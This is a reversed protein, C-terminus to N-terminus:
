ISGSRTFVYAGQGLIVASGIATLGDSSIGVSMGFNSNAHAESPVIKTGYQSWVGNTRIYFWMAGTSGNDTPGGVLAGNGYGMLSVSTGRQPAGVAGSSLLKSGQQIYQAFLLNPIISVALFLFVFLKTKM